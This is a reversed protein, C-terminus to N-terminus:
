GRSSQHEGHKSQLERVEQTSKAAWFAQKEKTPAVEKIEFMVFGSLWICIINISTLAFSVAGIRAFEAADLGSDSIVTDTM